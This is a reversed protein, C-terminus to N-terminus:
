NNYYDEKLEDSSLNKEYDNISSLENNISTNNEGKIQNNQEKKENEYAYNYSSDVYENNENNENKEKIKTTAVYGAGAVAAIGGLATAVKGISHGINNTTSNM